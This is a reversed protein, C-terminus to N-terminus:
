YFNWVSSICGAYFFLFSLRLHRTDFIIDESGLSLLISSPVLYTFLPPFIRVVNLSDLIDSLPIPYDHLLRKPFLNDGESDSYDSDIASPILGDSTLFLDIKEM